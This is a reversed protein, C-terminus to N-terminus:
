DINGFQQIKVGSRNTVILIRALCPILQLVCLCFTTAVIPGAAGYRQALYVSLPVSVTAMIVATVAQFRLGDEDTLFMGGPSHLAHVLLLAAFAVVVPASIEVLGNTAWRSIAPGVILLGAAALAGILGSVALAQLYIHLAKNPQDRVAAFDGWLSRTATQLVSLAPLYLMAVASYTAVEALGSSWNIILRDIQFTFPLVASIILMPLATQWIRAAHTETVRGVAVRSNRIKQDRHAIVSCTLNSILLGSLSMALLIEFPANILALAAVVLLNSIATTGQVLVVIGNRRLGVLIRAGLSAPINVCFFWFAAVIASDTGRGAQLGLISSWGGIFGVFTAVAALAAAFWFLIRRTKNLTVRFKAADEPLLAAANTVAAGLGLDTLPFLFPLTAVLTFTAYQEPGYDGTVVRTSLLAAIGSLPLVLLRVGASILLRRIANM